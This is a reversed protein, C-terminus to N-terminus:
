VVWRLESRMKKMEESIGREVPCSCGTERELIVGYMKRVWYHGDIWATLHQTPRLKRRVEQSLGGWAQM